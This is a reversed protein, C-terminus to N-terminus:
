IGIASTAQSVPQEVERETQISVYWKGASRSLTANRPAGPVARSLRLRMWGLKPLFIRGNLQDLKFQKPDPYRFSDHQSR